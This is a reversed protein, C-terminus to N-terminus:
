GHTAKKEKDGKDIWPPSLYGPAPKNTHKLFINNIEKQMKANLKKLEDTAKVRIM